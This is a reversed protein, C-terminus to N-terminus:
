PAAAIADVVVQWAADADVGMVVDCNPAPRDVLTRQDIVTMGRTLEGHTEVAVHRRAQEFLEPRSLALVALPDHVPAGAIRDHRTVYTGSFFHFLDALVTALRGDLASVADIREPTALFTHTVDLGCMVLPLGSDFVMAAAEPDAWINFEATPTRNGITGGGMLSIGAVHDALDPAARLALAINTLPGTPVLWVEDNRRCTDVIFGIADTGDPGRAPEPLDAGDLGSEGHVAPAHEARAVLPRAAGAHVEATLGLLDRLVCANYTTHDLSANGGVTTIGLLDTTHAAVVIAVADDHGPDCDLVIRPGPM